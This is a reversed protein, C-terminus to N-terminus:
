KKRGKKTIEQKHAAHYKRGRYAMESEPSGSNVIRRTRAVDFAKRCAKSLSGPNEAKIKIFQPSVKLKKM